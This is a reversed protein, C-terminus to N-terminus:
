PAGGGGACQLYWGPGYPNAAIVPLAATWDQSAPSTTVRHNWFLYSNICLGGSLPATEPFDGFSGSVAFHFICDLSCGAVQYSNNQISNSRCGQHRTLVEYM